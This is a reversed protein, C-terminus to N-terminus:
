DDEQDPDIWDSDNSDTKDDDDEAEDNSDDSDNADEDDLIAEAEDCDLDDDEDCDCDDDENEDDLTFDDDDLDDIYNMADDLTTFTKTITNTDDNTFAVVYQPKEETYESKMMDFYQGKYHALKQRDNYDYNLKALGNHKHYKNVDLENTKIVSTAMKLTGGYNIFEHLDM